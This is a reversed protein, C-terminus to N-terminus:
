RKINSLNINSLCMKSYKIVEEAQWNDIKKVPKNAKTASRVAYVNEQKLPSFLNFNDDYGSYIAVFPKKYACAIHVTSTDVTIIFDVQHCLAIFTELAMKGTYTIQKAKLPYYEKESPSIFNVSYEKELENIVQTLLTKDLARDSGLPSILVNLKDYAFWKHVTEIQETSPATLNYNPNEANIYKAFPTLTLSKSLHAAALKPIYFDYNHITKPSYHKKATKEFCITYSPALFYDCIINRTTFTPRYDLFVQWKKRQTLYTLPKDELCIDVGPTHTFIFNNRDTTLVGIKCNPYTQKLQSIVASLVVADGIGTGIPRILIHTINNWDLNTKIQKKRGFIKCILNKM